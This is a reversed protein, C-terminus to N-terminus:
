GATASAHGPVNTQLIHFINEWSRNAAAKDFCHRDPFTWGHAAEYYEVRGRTTSQRLTEEMLKQHDEPCTADQRAFGLYVEGQIRPLIKECSLPTDNIMQGGHLSIAAGIKDPIEAAAALAHRAGMCYGVTAFGPVEIDMSTTFDLLAKTDEVTMETTTALNLRKAEPDVTDAPRNAPPFSPSGHRYFLNPLFVAYGTTAYRRCMDRLEERIGFVDMYIVVGPLRRSLDSAFMETPMQGDRTPISLVQERM